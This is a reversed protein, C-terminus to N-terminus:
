VHLFRWFEALGLFGGEMRVSKGQCFVEKEYGSISHGGRGTRVDVQHVSVCECFERRDRGRFFVPDLSVFLHGWDQAMKCHLLIPEPM